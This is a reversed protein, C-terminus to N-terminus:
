EYTADLSKFDNQSEASNLEEKSIKKFVTKAIYPILNLGHTTPLNHPYGHEDWQCSSIHNIGAHIINGRIPYKDNYVIQTILIKDGSATKLCYQKPYVLTSEAFKLINM